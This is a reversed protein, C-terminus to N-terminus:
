AARSHSTLYKPVNPGVNFCCYMFLGVCLDCVLALSCLSYAHVFGKRRLRVGTVVFYAVLAGVLSGLSDIIVM